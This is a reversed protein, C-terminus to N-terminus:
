IIHLYNKWFWMSIYIAGLRGFVMVMNFWIIKTNDCAEILGQSELEQRFYAYEGDQYPFIFTEAMLLVLFAIFWQSLGAGTSMPLLATIFIITTIGAPLLFRVALVAGYLLGVFLYINSKMLNIIFDFNSYITENIGTFTILDEWAGLAGILILMSWDIHSRIESSGIVGFLLLSVIIALILWPIEIRHVTATVIGVSMCMMSILAGWESSSLPGLLEIQVAVKERSISLNRAGRFFVSSCLFFFGVLFLGAVSAAALWHMWQFAYQTQENLMALIALNAPKGTLFITGTILIGYLTSNFFCTSLVDKRGPKSASLLETLFPSTLSARAETSPIFPTLVLGAFFLTANYWRRSAPVRLLTHLILRFTLGSNIMLAGIGFISMCMFFSGSAFGSLTINAPAVDLLIFLLISLLPPVFGPLLQFFWMLIASAIIAIFYSASVNLDLTARVAHFIFWPILIVSIWGAMQCITDEKEEDPLVVAREEPCFVIASCDDEFRAAYLQSFLKYINLNNALMQQLCQKPIGIVTTDTLAFADEKYHDVGIAAEIGLYGEAKRTKCGAIGSIEMFGKEILFIQEAPTNKCVLMEGRRINRRFLHISLRALDLRPVHKLVPDASLFEIPTHDLTTTNNAHTFATPLPYERFTITIRDQKQSCIFEAARITNHVGM